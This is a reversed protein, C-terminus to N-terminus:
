NTLLFMLIFLASIVYTVPSIEKIKGTCIKIIVCSILGIGIGFSISYGFAMVAITLFAPLAAAPNAWNVNKVASIMLVGVWVLAAATACDPIIQAIPSLFTALLFCIGTVFAAFGTKGGAAVGSSAEVYTTVTSAGCVSGVCTAIADSLMCQNMRLPNGDKDILGGKSCAGYLTGLTDFMDIMCLSLASTLILVVLTGGNNGEIALYKSFNFGNAFVQGVSYKGWSGFAKFPNEITMGSFKAICDPDKWACGLGAFVFYLVTTGLIGWLIAGNVKKAALIAIAIVGLLTLVAAVTSLYSLNGSLVNFSAFGISGESLKVLGANNFGIFAIFMGIGVPISIKVEEPIAQLIKKRIGTATLVIFIIGDLLVFIMANAYTLGSGAALLTGTVYATAGLGSAQALPMKALLAMLMTGVIAGLATAIYVAGFEVADGYMSPVVLLAYVMSMFTTLGAIIETKYNSGSKSIGFFKDFKNQKKNSPAETPATVENEQPKREEVAEDTTAENMLLDNDNEM